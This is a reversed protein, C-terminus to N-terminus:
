TSCNVFSFCSRADRNASSYFWNGNRDSERGTFAHVRCQRGAGSTWTVHGLYKMEMPVCVTVGGGVPKELLCLSDYHCKGYADFQGPFLPANTVTWLTDGPKMSELLKDLEDQKM